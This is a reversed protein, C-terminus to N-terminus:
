LGQCKVAAIENPDCQTVADDTDGVHLCRLIGTENGVCEVRGIVVPVSANSFQGGTIAIAGTFNFLLKLHLTLFRKFVTLVMLHSDLSLAYFLHM